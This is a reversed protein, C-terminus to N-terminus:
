RQPRGAPVIKDARSATRGTFRVKPEAVGPPPLPLCALLVSRAPEGRLSPEVGRVGASSTIGFSGSALLEVAQATLCQSPRSCIRQRWSWRRRWEM